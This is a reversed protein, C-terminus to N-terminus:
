AALRNTLPSIFVQLRRRRGPRLSPPDNERTGGSISGSSISPKRASTTSWGPLRGGRRNPSVGLATLWDTLCNHREYIREAIERGADTLEIWGEKDM